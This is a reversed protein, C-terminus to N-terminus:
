KWFSSDPIKEGITKPNFEYLAKLYTELAKRSNEASKFHFNSRPLAKKLIPATLGIELKEGMVAAAELDTNMWDIDNALAYLMTQYANPHQNKFEKKVFVVTQPYGFETNYAEKWYKQFDYVEKIDKNKMSAKTMIPEPLVAITAKGSIAYSALDQPGPLYVLNVDVQPDLGNDKLIKQLLIDPTANKGTLYIDKGRLNEISSIEESSALYLNGWIMTGAVEYKAGKNYLIAAMNSPVTIVDAEKSLISASALKPQNLVEVKYDANFGLYNENLVAKGFSVATPGSLVKINYEFRESKVDSNSVVSRSEGDWQIEYGIAYMLPRYPLYIQGEIEKSQINSKLKKGDIEFINEKIDFKISSNDSKFELVDAVRKVEYGFKEQFESDSIMLNNEILKYGEGLEDIKISQAELAFVSKSVGLMLLVLLIVGLKRRM